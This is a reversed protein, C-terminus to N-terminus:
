FVWNKKGYLNVLRLVDRAVNGPEDWKDSKVTDYIM